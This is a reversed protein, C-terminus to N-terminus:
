AEDPRGGRGPLGAGSCLVHRMNKALPYVYVAKTPVRLTSERDNRTRGQTDGVYIWNAAKYCTGRFRDRQVFTELLHVPHGYKSIWDDCIRKAVQGLIHSALQAVRVWPLILFRMNNTLFSLNRQRTKPDWGIFEDRPATKWAASGFLLCALPRDSNDLVLYKLNEGVSGRYGLYHYRHLLSAFLAEQAPHQVPSVQVPGLQNLEGAIPSTEHSIFPISQNRFHNVSPSRRPPLRLHGMGELKLLLTRCAMDKLQGNSARWNWRICLERSLHTRHWSPNEKILRRILQVAQPTILRGQIVRGQEM